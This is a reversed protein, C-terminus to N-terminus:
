KIWNKVKDILTAKGLTGDWIFSEGATGTELFSNATATVTLVGDELGVSVSDEKAFNKVSGRSLISVYPEQTKSFIRGTYEKAILSHSIDLSLLWDVYSRAEATNSFTFQRQQDPELDLVKVLTSPLTVLHEAGYTSQGVFTRTTIVIYEPQARKTSPLSVRAFGDYPRTFTALLQDIAPLNTTQSDKITDALKAWSTERSMELTVELGASKLTKAARHLYSYLSDTASLHSFMGLLTRLLPPGSQQRKSQTLAPPTRSRRHLRMRHEHALLLRLGEAVNQALRRQSNNLGSSTNDDRAVCDILVKRCSVQGGLGPAPIHIVSNRLEVGHARLDRSEMSLEHFLEEEFLSDRALQISQEVALDDLSGKSPLHSTGVIKGNDSIRVRMTKPKLSLTSDLIIGGEKNM